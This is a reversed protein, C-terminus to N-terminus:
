EFSLTSPYFDPDLIQELEFPCDPPFRDRALGTEGVAKTVARRYVRPLSKRLVDRLSPMEELLDEIEERQVQITARWSGSRRGSQIQWKLLHTLLVRLRSNLEHRQRKGMDEIEEAIHELDAEELRGTRLLEANRATWEFFDQDYLERTTPGLVDQKM